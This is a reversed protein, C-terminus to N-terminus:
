FNVGFNLYTPTLLHEMSFKKVHRTKLKTFLYIFLLRIKGYKQLRVIQNSWRREALTPSDRRLPPCNNEFPGRFDFQHPGRLYARSRFFWFFPPFYTVMEITYRSHFPPLSRIIYYYHLTISLCSLFCYDPNILGFCALLVKSLNWILLCCIRLIYHGFM